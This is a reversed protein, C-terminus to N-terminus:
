MMSATFNAQRVDNRSEDGATDSWKRKTHSVCMNLWTACDPEWLIVGGAMICLLNWTVFLLGALTCFNEDDHQKLDFNIGKRGRSRLMTSTVGMGGFVEMFHSSRSKDADPMADTAFAHLIALVVSVPQMTIDGDIAAKNLEVEARQKFSSPIQAHATTVCLATVSM